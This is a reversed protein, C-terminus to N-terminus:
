GGTTQKLHLMVVRRVWATVPMDEKAAERHAAAFLDPKMTVALFKRKTTAM